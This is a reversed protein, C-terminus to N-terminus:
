VCEYVMRVNIKMTSFREQNPKHLCLFKLNGSEFAKLNSSSLRIKVLIDLIKLVILIMGKEKDKANKAELHLILVHRRRTAM